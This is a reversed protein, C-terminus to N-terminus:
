QTQSQLSQTAEILQDRLWQHQLLNTNRQHWFMAVTFGTLDVPPPLLKLGMSQACKQAMRRPLLAACDSNELLFPVAMFHATSWVVNRTLQQQALVQDVAGYFDDRLSVLIHSRELYTDLSIEDAASKQRVVCVFDEHYLEKMMHWSKRPLDVGIFLDISGNDLAELVIGRNVSGVRIRLGPAQDTLKRLLEGGFSAEVYDSTAIRFEGQATSPDFPVKELLTNQIDTLVQRITISIERAYPTVEMARSTRILIPDDLLSRLRKLSYSMASQSMNLKEAAKTVNAEEILVDLALLLNLDLTRLNTYDIAM